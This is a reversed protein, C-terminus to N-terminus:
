PLASRVGICGPESRQAKVRTCSSYADSPAGRSGPAEAGPL